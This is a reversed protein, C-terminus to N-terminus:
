GRHGHCIGRPSTRIFEVLDKVELIALLGESEIKALAQTTNLDSRYLSVYARKIAAKAKGDLGARDLGVVNVGWIENREAALMFPPVDQSFRGNGSLMAMRGVRTFQQIGVGGSLFARDGVEVYGALMAYNAIVVGSGIRCNHAVHAGGMIFNDDGVVTASEEKTGRHITAYERIINREGIKTYSVGGKYFVDQPAHGIVAGMHIQNDAGLESNSCIYAHPWIRTRPGIRVHDEIICYAGVEVTPDLEVDKGIIATPHISMIM